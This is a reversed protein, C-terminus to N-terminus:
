DGAMPVTRLSAGLVPQFLRSARPCDRPEPRQSIVEFYRRVRSKIDIPLQDHNMSANIMVMRGAFRERAKSAQELSLIVKGLVIAFFIQGFVMIFSAMWKMSTSVAFAPDGFLEAVTTLLYHVYLKNMDGYFDGSPEIANWPAQKINHLEIAFETATANDDEGYCIDIGDAAAYNLSSGIFIFVLLLVAYKFFVVYTDM